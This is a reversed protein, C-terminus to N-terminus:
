QPGSAGPGWPSHAVSGSALPVSHTLRTKRDAIRRRKPRTGFSASERTSGAITASRSRIPTNGHHEQRELEPHSREGEDHEEQTEGAARAPPPLDAQDGRNTEGPEVAQREHDIGAPGEEVPREDHVAQGHEQLLDE